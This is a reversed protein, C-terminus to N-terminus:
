RAGEADDGADAAPTALRAALLEAAADDCGGPSSGLRALRLSVGAPPTALARLLEDVAKASGFRRALADQVEEPVAARTLAHLSDAIEECACSGEVARRPADEAVAQRKLCECRDALLQMLAAM